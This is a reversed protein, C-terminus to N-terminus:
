SKVFLEFSERRLSSDGYPGIWKNELSVYWFPPRINRLVCMRVRSAGTLVDTHAEGAQARKVDSLLQERTLALREILQAANHMRHAKSLAASSPAGVVGVWSRAVHAVSRENIAGGPLSAADAQMHRLIEEAEQPDKPLVIPAVAFFHALEEGRMLKLLDILRM